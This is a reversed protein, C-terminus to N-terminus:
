PAVDALQKILRTDEGPKIVIDFNFKKGNAVFTVVHKGPKLAIKSRPAIPTTKGTDKGDVIVKAWPQSNAVLYGDDNSPGGTTSTAPVPAAGGQSPKALALPTPGHGPKDAKEAGKDDGSVVTSSSSGPSMKVDLTQELAHEFSVYKIVTSFGHKRLSVRAPKGPDIDSVTVPTVGFRKGNVAVEIGPPTSSVALKGYAPLLEVDRALSEGAKLTVSLKQEERM